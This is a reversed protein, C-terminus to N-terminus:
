IVMAVSEFILRKAKVLCWLDEWTKIISDSNRYCGHEISPDGAYATLRRDNKWWIVTTRGLVSAIWLQKWGNSEGTHSNDNMM